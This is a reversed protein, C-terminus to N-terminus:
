FGKELGLWDARSFAVSNSAKDPFELSIYSASGWLALKAPRTPLM